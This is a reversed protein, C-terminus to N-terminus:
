WFKFLSVRSLTRVSFSLCRNHSGLITYSFVSWFSLMYIEVVLWWYFTQVLITQFKCWNLCSLVLSPAKHSHFVSTVTVLSPWNKRVLASTMSSASIKLPASFPSEM